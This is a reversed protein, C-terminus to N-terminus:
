KLNEEIYDNLIICDNVVDYKEKDSTAMNDCLIGRNKIEQTSWGGITGEQISVVVGKITSAKTEISDQKLYSVDKNINNLLGITTLSLIIIIISTIGTIKTLKMYEGMIKKDHKTM